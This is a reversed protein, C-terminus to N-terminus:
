VFVDLEKKNDKEKPTYLFANITTHGVVKISLYPEEKDKTKNIWVAVGDGKFKPMTGTKKTENEM